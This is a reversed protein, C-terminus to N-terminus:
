DKSKIMLDNSKSLLDKLCTHLQSLTRNYRWECEKLHLGVHRKVGTLKALRDKAFNWFAEMGNGNASTEALGKSNLRFHHDHRLDLLGDYGRWGDSGVISEPSVKGRIVAQLTKASGDSVQETFIVGDREYIGFVPQRSLNPGSLSEDAEGVGLMQQMQSLQHAKILRRFALFYRNVIRSNLKLLLATKGADIDACFCEIVRAVNYRSLRSNERM